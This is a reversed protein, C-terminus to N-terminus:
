NILKVITMFQSGVDQSSFRVYGWSYQMYWNALLQGCSELFTTNISMDATTVSLIPLDANLRYKDTFYLIHSNSDEWVTLVNKLYFINFLQKAHAPKDQIFKDDIENMAVNENSFKDYQTGRSLRGLISDRKQNVTDDSYDFTYWVGRSKDKKEKCGFPIHFVENYPNSVTYNNGLMVGCFKRRRFITELLNFFIEPEHIGYEGGKYQSRKKAVYEDFIFFDCDEISLGNTNNLTIYYCIDIWAGSNKIQVVNNRYRYDEIMSYLEKNFAFVNFIGLKLALEIEVDTRRIYLFKRGNTISNAFGTALWNTSKGRGRIGNVMHLPYKNTLEKNNIDYGEANEYFLNAM